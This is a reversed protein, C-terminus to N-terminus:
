SGMLRVDIAREKGGSRAIRYSVRKGSYTRTIKDAEDYLKDLNAGFLRFDYGMLPHSIFELREVVTRGQKGSRFEYVGVQRDAYLLDAEKLDLESLLAM